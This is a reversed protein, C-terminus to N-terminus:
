VGHCGSRHYHKDARRHKKSRKKSKKKLTSEEGTWDDVVEDLFKAIEEDYYRTGITYYEPENRIYIIGSKEKLNQLEKFKEITSFCINLKTTKYPSYSFNVRDGPQKWVSDYIRKDVNLSVNANEVM